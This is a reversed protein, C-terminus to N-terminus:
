SLTNQINRCFGCSCVKNKHKGGKILILSLITWEFKHLGIKKFVAVEPLHGIFSFKRHEAARVKLNGSCINRTNKFQGLSGKSIKKILM